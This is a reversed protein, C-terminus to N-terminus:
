AKTRLEYPPNAYAYDAMKRWKLLPHRQPKQEDTEVM